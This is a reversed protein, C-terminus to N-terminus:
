WRRRHSRYSHRFSVFATIRTLLLAFGLVDFLSVLFLADRLLCRFRTRPRGDVFGASAPLFTTGASPLLFVLARAPFAPPFSSACCRSSLRLHPRIKSAALSRRFHSRNM